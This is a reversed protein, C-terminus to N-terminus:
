GKGHKTVQIFGHPNLLFNVMKQLDRIKQKTESHTLVYYSTNPINHHSYTDGTKNNVFDRKPTRSVIPGRLIKLGTLKHLVEEGITSALREMVRTMTLAATDERIAEQRGKNILQWNLVVSINSRQGKLSSTTSDPYKKVVGPSIPKRVITSATRDAILAAIYAAIEAGENEALDLLRKFVEDPLTLTLTVM